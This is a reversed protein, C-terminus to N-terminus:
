AYTSYTDGLGGNRAPFWHGEDQSYLGTCPASYRLCIEGSSGWQREYQLVYCGRGLFCGSGAGEM